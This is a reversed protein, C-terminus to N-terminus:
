SRRSALHTTSARVYPQLTGAGEGAHRGGPQAREAVWYTAGSRLTNPAILSAEDDGALPEGM